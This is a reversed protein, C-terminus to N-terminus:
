LHLILGTQNALFNMWQKPSNRVQVSQLGWLCNHSRNEQEGEKNGYEDSKEYENERRIENTGNGHVLPFGQRVLEVKEIAGNFPVDRKTRKIM